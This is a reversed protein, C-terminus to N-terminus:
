QDRRGGRGGRGSDKKGGQKPSGRLTVALVSFEALDHLGHWPGCGGPFRGTENEEGRCFRRSAFM